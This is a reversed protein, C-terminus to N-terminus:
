DGSSSIMTMMLRANLKVTEQILSKPRIYATLLIIMEMCGYIYLSRTAIIYNPPSTKHKEGTYRESIYNRKGNRKRKLEGWIPKLNGPFACREVFKIKNQFNGGVVNKMHTTIGVGGNNEQARSYINDVVNSANSIKFIISNTICILM